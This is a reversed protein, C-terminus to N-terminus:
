VSSSVYVSSVPITQRSVYKPSRRLFYCPGLSFTMTLLKIIRVGVCVVNSYCFSTPLVHLVYSLPRIYISKPPSVKLSSLVQLGLCLHLVINFHTKLFYSSLALVHNMQSLLHSARRLVTIISRTGFIRPIEQCDLCINAGKLPSHEM